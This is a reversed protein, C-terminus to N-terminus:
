PLAPRYEAWSAPTEHVRVAAIAGRVKAQLNAACWDYLHRALNESTPQIALIDNLDRHDFHTDLYTGLPALDAFDTVFGPPALDAAALEVEVTYTHGHQRSCKHGDPLGDLHHAADFTFRRGIRYMAIM